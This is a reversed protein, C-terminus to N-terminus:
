QKRKRYYYRRYWGSTKKWFSFATEEPFVNVRFVRFRDDELLLGGRDTAVASSFGARWVAEVVADDYDGFPYAFTEVPYGFASELYAKSERIQVEREKPPLKSLHPHTLTHAGCQWGARLLDAIQQRNMLHSERHAAESADWNNTHILDTGLLYLVGRWGRAQMQPFANRWVSEYGDDFTLVLPKRPWQVGRRAGAAVAEYDELTVPVLGRRAIWRLHKEFNKRAVFIRHPTDLSGDSIKHYMLIPMWGPQLRRMRAERYVADVQRCVTTLDYHSRVWHALAAPPFANSPHTELFKRLASHAKQVVGEEKKGTDGFNGGALATINEETVVGECASEGLALVWRGLGLSRLAVRGAGIVLSSRNIVPAVDDVFGLYEVRSGFREQLLALHQDGGNPMPGNSDGAVLIRLDPFSLLLDPFVSEFLAAAREGKPGGLRGIWSIVPVAPLAAPPTDPFTLGNPIVTIKREIKNLEEMLHVKLAASIVIIKEGYPDTRKSKFHIQQRGHITSVLAPERGRIVASALASAAKSHAHIIQIDQERILTRLRKRAKRKQGFRRDHVPVTFHPLPTPVGAFDSALFVRHGEAAQAGALELAHEVAGTFLNGSFLHLINM